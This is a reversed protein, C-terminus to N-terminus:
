EKKTQKLIWNSMINLAEPSFTQTIQGYERPAGTTCEQFLHNLGRLPITEFSKNGAKTLAQRIGLLNQSANVQLDKEGNLALVPCKIKELVPVPNYTIFYRFWPKVFTKVQEDIFPKVKEPPLQEGATFDLLHTKLYKELEPKATEDPMTKLIRIIDQYCQILPKRKDESIGQVVMIDLLQRIWLESNPIGPAALLVMFAIDPNEVAIMPAVMGGESHGALGIKRTQIEKRTKLYNVAAKVETAFDVSTSTNFDGTSAGTGRDDFRLVAIGQRTLNDAIVLFPKHGAIEEDRNQAGSGTILIVAPYVGNGQPITLTGALKIGAGPNAFTVEESRYPYPPRPEQPREPAIERRTLTLPFPINAQTFTGKIETGSYLGEYRAQLTPISINLRSDKFTTTATPVGWAGQDPSDLTTQYSGATETIHFSIRLKGGPVELNGFWSGNIEQAFGFYAYLLVLTLIGIKKM